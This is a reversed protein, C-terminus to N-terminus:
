DETARRRRWLIFWLLLAALLLAFGGVLLGSLNAPTEAAAEEEAKPENLTPLEEDEEAGGATDDSQEAEDVETEAAPEDDGPTAALQPSQSQPTSSQPAAPVPPMAVTLPVSQTGSRASQVVLHHQGAATNAPIVVTSSFAGGTATVTGLLVPTSHLWLELTDGPLYGSGSVTLSGGRIISSASATMAPELVTVTFWKTDAGVPNKARVKISYVGAETPVGKLVGKRTLTLGDPLHGRVISFKVNTGDHQLKQRFPMTIVGQDLDGQT